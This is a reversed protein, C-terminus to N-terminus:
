RCSGRAARLGHRCVAIACAVLYLAAAPLSIRWLSWAPDTEGEMSVDPPAVEARWVARDPRWRLSEIARPTAAPGAGRVPMALLNEYIAVPDDGAELPSVEAVRRYARSGPALRGTPDLASPKDAEVLSVRRVAVGRRAFTYVRVWGLGAEVDPPVRFTGAFRRWDAGTRAPDITVGPGDRWLGKGRWVLQAWVASSAPGDLGRLELSLRVSRGGAVPARRWAEVKVSAWGPELRLVEEEVPRGDITWPGVLVGSPSQSAAEGPPGALLPSEGEGSTRVSEIVERIEPDAAILYKVGYLSLLHNTRVLRRWQRNQGYQDFGLLHAHDPSQWPGYNAITPVALAAATKPLLLESPRDHYHKGLGLVRYALPDPEQSRIWRAAPSRRPDAERAPDAPVDVTLTVVALDAVAVVPWLWGRRRPARAWLTVGAATVVWAAWALWVGSRWPLVSSLADWRSGAFLGGIPWRWVLAVLGAVIAAIALVGLMVAPLVRVAGRRLMHRLRDGGARAEDRAAQLTLAALVALALDIVVLMRAPCRVKGLVPIAHVLRYTPLHYGLAWIFAGLAIWAWLTATPGLVHWRRRVSASPLRGLWRRRRSPRALVWVGVAAALLPGLGVYGLMECQHWPGWWRQAVLANPVRNGMLFPFLWLVGAVPSYSNEGATLYGISARTSRELVGVAASVAPWACAVGLACAGLGAPITRRWPRARLIAYVGVWVGAQLGIGWHGSTVALYTTPALLLMGGVPLGRRAGAALREIGLLLWPLWAATHVMALHVRHGVFFGGFAFAAAGLFAASRGLRLSRLYLFTGSAAISFALWVNLTYARLSDLAAFLWTPPYMVASQPDALIPAGTAELPTSTPWRGERLAEGVLSRLPWYYVLDDEGAGLPALWVPALMAAPLLVLAATVVV